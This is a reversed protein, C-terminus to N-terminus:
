QDVAAAAKQFMGVLKGRFMVLVAILGVALIAAIIGYETATAAQEDKWLRRLTKM